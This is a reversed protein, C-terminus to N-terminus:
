ESFGHEALYAKMRASAEEPDTPLHATEEITREAVRPMIDVLAPTLEGMIALYEPDTYVGMFKAAFAHGGESEFFRRAGALEDASYTRTMALAFRERMKPEFSVMVPTMEEFMITQAIQQREAYHPDVIAMLDGMSMTAFLAAIADAEEDNTAFKEVVKAMGQMPVDMMGSLVQDMMAPMSDQMMTGVAGEPWMAGAIYTADELPTHDQAHAPAAFALAVASAALIVIRM